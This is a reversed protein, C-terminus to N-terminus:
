GPRLALYKEVEEPYLEDGECNTYMDYLGM